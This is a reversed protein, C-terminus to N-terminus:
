IDKDKIKKVSQTRSCTLVRQVREVYPWTDCIHTCTTTSRWGNAFCERASRGITKNGISTPRHKCTPHQLNIAM